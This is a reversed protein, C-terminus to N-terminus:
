VIKELRVDDYGKLIWEDYHQKAKKYTLYYDDCGGVWVIYKYKKM